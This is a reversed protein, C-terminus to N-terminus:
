AAGAADLVARVARSAEELVTVGPIDRWADLAVVPRGLTLALAIESATGHEGSLALVADAAAVVLVNRAHGLGTPIVIDISPHAARADYSPLIGVSLGGAQRAGSAAAGMVGGLGGCILVAGAQAIGRGVAAAKQRLM